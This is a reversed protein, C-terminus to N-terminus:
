GNYAKVFLEKFQEITPIIPNTKTCGDAKACEAMTDLMSMYKQEDAIVEKLCAAINLEKNLNKVVAVLDEAGIEKAMNAYIEKAYEAGCNFEM